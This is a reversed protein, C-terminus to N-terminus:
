FAACQIAVASLAPFVLESNGTELRRTKVRDPANWHNVVDPQRADLVDCVGEAAALRVTRGFGAFEFKAKVPESAMNVGFIVLSSNTESACAFLDLADSSQKLPVPVPEAHTSYLRMVYYSARKLLGLPSTEIIAGCFSNALNSRCAMEVRNAHRLLLNLYRANLLAARLTMQRGRMLGWDGGSVNWETVAILTRECGPTRELMRTLESFERECFGFDTTYHHPCIFALDRGFRDLLKQSPFSSLLALSPDKSKMSSVFEGFRGLYEENDGSIENGVQWYKVHYPLPHGNAVRRAGWTTAPGANCYEVM